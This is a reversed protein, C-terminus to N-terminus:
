TDQFEYVIYYKDPETPNDNWLITGNRKYVEGQSEMTNSRFRRLFKLGNSKGGKLYGDPSNAWLLGRTLQDTENTIDKM